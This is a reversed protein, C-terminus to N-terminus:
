GNFRGLERERRDYASERRTPQTAAVHAPLSRLASDRAAFHDKTGFVAAYFRERDFRSNGKACLDAMSLTTTWVALKAERTSEVAWQGALVDAIAIFDKATM